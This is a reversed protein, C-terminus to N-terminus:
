TDAVRVVSGTGITDVLDQVHGLGRIVLDPAIEALPALVFARYGSM